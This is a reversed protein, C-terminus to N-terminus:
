HVMENGPVTSDATGRVRMMAEDGTHRANELEEGEDLEEGGREEREQSFEEGNGPVVFGSM